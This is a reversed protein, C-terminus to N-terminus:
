PSVLRVHKAEDFAMTTGRDLVDHGTPLVAEQAAGQSGRLCLISRKGKRGCCPVGVYEYSLSSKQLSCTSSVYAADRLLDCRVAPRCAWLGM